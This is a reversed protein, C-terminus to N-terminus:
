GIMALIEPSMEEERGVPDPSNSAPRAASKGRRKFGIPRDCSHGWTGLKGNPLPHGGGKFTAKSIIFGYDKLSQRVELKDKLSAVTLWVWARDLEAGQHLDPHNQHLWALVEPQPIRERRM